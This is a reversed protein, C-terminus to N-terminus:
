GIQSVACQSTHNNRCRNIRTASSRNKVMIYHQSPAPPQIMEKIFDHTQKHNMNLLITWPSCTLSWSMPLWSISRERFIGTEAGSPKFIHILYTGFIYGNNWSTCMTMKRFNEHRKLNISTSTFITNFRITLQGPDYVVHFVIICITKFANSRLWRYVHITHVVKSIVRLFVFGIPFSQLLIWSFLFPIDAGEIIYIATYRPIFSYLMYFIIQYLTDLLQKLCKEHIICMWTQSSWVSCRWFIQIVHFM